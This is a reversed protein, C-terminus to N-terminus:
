APSLKEDLIHDLSSLKKYPPYEIWYGESAWHYSRVLRCLNVESHFAKYANKQDSEDFRKDKSKM